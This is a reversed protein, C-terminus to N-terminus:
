FLGDDSVNQTGSNLGKGTKIFLGGGVTKLCIENSSVCGGKTITNIDALGLGLRELIHVIFPSEVPIRSTSTSSGSLGALERGIELKVEIRLLKSRVCCTFLGVLFGLRSSRRMM